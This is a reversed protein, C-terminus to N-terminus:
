RDQYLYQGYHASSIADDQVGNLVTGVIFERGLEEIARNVAPFSTAGARIVFVAAQTLRTLIQADPLMGLPPTDIIIWDYRTACDQLVLRMRDSSLGALPNQDPRGSPLVTLLPAVQVMPPDIRDARLVDSLGRDNAIGLVHHVSPRRLDADIILVRRGYSESLTLALNVATLTKGEKPAASTVVVTRLGREVQVEHLSAALRRYQELSVANRNPGVVLTENQDLRVRSVPRRLEPRVPALSPSNVSPAALREVQVASREVRESHGRTEVPYEDLTMDKEARSSVEARTTERVLPGKSRKLAEDIRSM